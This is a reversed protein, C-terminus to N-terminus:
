KEAWVDLAKDPPEPVERMKRRYEVPTLGSYKKFQTSFYPFNSFGAKLAISTVYQDTHELMQAALKMREQYIYETLNMHLEKKFLRGLYGSSVYVHAAIGDRNLEQDLNQLIYKQARKVVTDAQETLLFEGIRDLVQKIWNLLLQVSGVSRQFDDGTLSGSLVKDAPIGHFQMGHYVIQLFGDRFRMLWPGDLLDQKAMPLIYEEIKQYVEACKGQELLLKWTQMDPLSALHQPSENCALAVHSSYGVDNGGMEELIAWQDFMEEPTVVSGIYFSLRWGQNEAEQIAAECRQLMEERACPYVDLYALIAWKQSYRDLVAGGDAEKLLHRSFLEEFFLHDKSAAYKSVEVKSLHVTKALVLMLHMDELYPIHMRRAAMMIMTRDSLVWGNLLGNWLHVLLIPYIDEMYNQTWLAGGPEQGPIRENQLFFSLTRGTIPAELHMVGPYQASGTSIFWTAPWRIQAQAFFDEPRQGISYDDLLVMQVPKEELCRFAQDFSVVEELRWPEAVHGLCLEISALFSYANSIVLCTKMYILWEAAIRGCLYSHFSAPM